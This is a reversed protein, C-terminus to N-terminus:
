GHIRGITAQQTRLGRVAIWRRLADQWSPMPFGAAALKENALACFRPRAAAFRVSEVSVSELRPPVGLLRAAEEALECWTAYGSNVAHYLGPAAGTELLHRTARAVDEAYSPSVVRDLFVRAPRGQELADLVSDVSGARGSWTRTSGFLSEVRLVLARPADLAFWEGLLKSLAYASRPSPQATEPYPESASGDFVFDSGYHVLTAGVSEAARALSRVAFANVAFADAPRTEADDVHNFAACNIIASPRAQEVAQRVAAPDTIDLSAHTHAVVDCGAFTEAM